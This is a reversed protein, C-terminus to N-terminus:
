PKCSNAAICVDGCVYGLSLVAANGTITIM